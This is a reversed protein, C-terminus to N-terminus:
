NSAAHGLDVVLPYQSAGVFEAVGGDNWAAVYPQRFKLGALAALPRGGASVSPAPRGCTVSDFAVLLATGGRADRRRSLEEVLPRPDAHRCTDVAGVVSVEGDPSVLVGNLGRSYLGVIEGDGTEITSHMGTDFGASLLRVSKGASAPFFRHQEPTTHIRAVFQLRKRAAKQAKKGLRGAAALDAPTLAVGSRIVGSFFTAGDFYVHCDGRLDTDVGWVAQYLAACDDLMIFPIRAVSAAAAARLSAHPGLATEAPRGDRTAVFTLPLAVSQQGFSVKRTEPDYSFSRWPSADHWLSQLFASWQPLAENLGDVGGAREALTPTDGILSVGLGLRPLDIGMAAAVTPAIDLASGERAIQRPAGFAPVANWIMVANRRDQSYEYGDLNVRMMPHDSAIVIVTDEAGGDAEIADIFAALLTDTCAIAALMPSPAAHQPCGPGTAGDPPHTDVTLLFLGFPKGAKRLARYQELATTFTANDYRGWASTGEGPLALEELGAARASGHTRFFSGKGAFSLSAGQVFQLTYGRAKLEDGLCSARPLFRDFAGFRNGAGVPAVLPVGCQAAVIGGMTWTTGWPALVGTFSVAQKERAKLRPLYTAFDPNELFTRDLSEVYIYVLNKGPAGGSHSGPVYADSVRLVRGDRTVAVGDHSTSLLPAIAAWTERVAPNFALAAALLASVLLSRGGSLWRRLWASRRVLLVLGALLLLYLTVGAIVPALVRLSLGSAGTVLHYIVSANVGEGTFYAAISYFIYFSINVIILLLTVVLM